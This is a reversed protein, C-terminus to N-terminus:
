DVHYIWDLIVDIDSEDLPYNNNKISNETHDKKTLSMTAKEFLSTTKATHASKPDIYSKLNKAINKHILPYQNLALNTYIILVAPKQNITYISLFLLQPNEAIFNSFDVIDTKLYAKFINLSMGKLILDFSYEKIFRSLSKRLINKSKYGKLLEASAYFVKHISFKQPEKEEFEYIEFMADRLEELTCPLILFKDAGLRITRVKQAASIHISGSLIIKSHPFRNRVIPIASWGMFENHLSPLLILSHKSDIKLNILSEMNNFYLYEVDHELIEKFLETYPKFDEMIIVCKCNEIDHDYTNKFMPTTINFDTDYSFVISFIDKNGKIDAYSLQYNNNKGLHVFEFTGNVFVNYEQKSKISYNSIDIIVIVNYKQLIQLLSTIFSTETKKDKEKLFYEINQIVIVEPNLTKIYMEFDNLVSTFDNIESSLEKIYLPIELITLHESFKLEDIKKQIYYNHFSMEFGTLYLCPTKFNQYYNLLHYIFSYRVFGKPENFFYVGKNEMNGLQEDIFDIGFRFTKM